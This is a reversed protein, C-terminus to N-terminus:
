NSLILLKLAKYGLLLPLIELTCLYLILYYLLIDKQKIIKYSRIVKFAFAALYIALGAVLVYKTLEPPIYFAALILPFLAIGLGKNFIFTHHIYETFVSRNNFIFGTLHLLAIRVLMYATLIGLIMGFLYVGTINIKPINFHVILEYIFITLVVYFILDLILSVRRTLINKELYLKAAIQFNLISDALSSFFKGYFIRIWIFLFIILLGIGTLWDNQYKIRAEPLLDTKTTGSHDGSEPSADRQRFLHMNSLPNEMLFNKNFNWKLEPLCPSDSEFTDTTIQIYVSSQLTVATDPITTDEIATVPTSLIDPQPVFVSDLMDTGTISSDIVSTDIKQLLFVSDSVQLNYGTHMGSNGNM